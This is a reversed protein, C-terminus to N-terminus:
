PEQLCSHRGPFDQNEKCRWTGPQTESCDINLRWRQTPSCIEIRNETCRTAYPECGSPPLTPPVPCGGLLLCWLMLRRM